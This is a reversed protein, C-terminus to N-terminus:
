EVSARPRRLYDRSQRWRNSVLARLERNSATLASQASRGTKRSSERGLETTITLQRMKVDDQDEEKEVCSIKAKRAPLRMKPTMWGIARRAEGLVRHLM